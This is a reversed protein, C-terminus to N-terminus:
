YPYCTIFSLFALVSQANKAIFSSHSHSQAALFCKMTRKKDSPALVYKKNEKAPVM